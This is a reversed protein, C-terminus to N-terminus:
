YTTLPSKNTYPIGIKLFQTQITPAKKPSEREYSDKSYSNLLYFCIYYFFDKASTKSIIKFAYYITRKCSGEVIGNVRSMGKGSVCLHCHTLCKSYFNCMQHIKRLQKSLSLLFQNLLINFYFVVPHSQFVSNSRLDPVFAFCLLEISINCIM